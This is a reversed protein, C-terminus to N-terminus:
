SAEGSTAARATLLQQQRHEHTHTLSSSRRVAGIGRLDNLGPGICGKSATARISLASAAPQVGPGGTASVHAHMISVNPVKSPGRRRTREFVKSASGPMSESAAVRGAVSLRQDVTYEFQEVQVMAGCWPAAGPGGGGVICPQALQCFTQCWSAGLWQM